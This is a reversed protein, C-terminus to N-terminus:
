SGISLLFEAAPDNILANLDGGYDKIKLNQTSSDYTLAYYPSTPTDQLIIVRYGSSTGGNSVMYVVWKSASGIDPEDAFVFMDPEHITFYKGSVVCHWTFSDENYVLDVFAFASSPTPLTASLSGTHIDATVYSDALVSKLLMGKINIDAIDLRLHLDNIAGPLAFSAVIEARRDSPNADNPDDLGVPETFAEFAILSGSGILLSVLAAAWPGRRLRILAVGILLMVMLGLGLSGLTPVPYLFRVEIPAGTPSGDVSLLVDESGDASQAHHALRFKQIKRLFSSPISGVVSDSNSLGSNLQLEFGALPQPNVFALGDCTEVEASVVQPPILDTDVVVTLQLEFGPLTGPAISGLSFQCGLSSTGAPGIGTRYTQLTQGSASAPGMLGLAIAIVALVVSRSRRKMKSFRIGM